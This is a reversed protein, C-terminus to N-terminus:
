EICSPLARLAWEQMSQLLLVAAVNYSIYMAELVFM